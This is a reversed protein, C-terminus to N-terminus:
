ISQLFDVLKTFARARHSLKSKEALTMEAFTRDYGDPVFIPDYGFGNSGRKDPIITGEVTGEFQHYVGDIVLTIVTLFRAQKNAFPALNQLLLAINDAPERQPGAYRASRVGPEGNLATVELGTDDAFCNVNFNQYVYEAKGRSNEAITEYPEPIDAECGIEALTVLEFHNGLLAQVEILKNVNNTAFCLKM